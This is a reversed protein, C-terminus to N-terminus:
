LYIYIMCKVTNYLYIARWHEDNVTTNTVDRYVSNLIDCRSNKILIEFLLLFGFSFNSIQSGRKRGDIGEINRDLVQTKRFM